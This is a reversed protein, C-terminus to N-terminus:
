LNLITITKPPYRLGKNPAVVHLIQPQWVFSDFYCFILLLIGSSTLNSEFQKNDSETRPADTLPRPLPLPPFPLPVDSVFRSLAYIQESDQTKLHLLKGLKM